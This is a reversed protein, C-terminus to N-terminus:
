SARLEEAEDATPLAFNSIPTQPKEPAQIKTRPDEMRGRRVARVLEVFEARYGGPDYSLGQEAWQEVVALDATGKHESDRLVMGFAAVAAAFKFDGSADAFAAGGDKVPFEVKRSVEGAPEKYRVKVTLLEDAVERSVDLETGVRVYRLEEGGGGKQAPDAGVPVVEYLATVTHGAGIEGADVKDNAFDEKALARKEYGILRYASVQAPNFEVQLKVDKAITLLTGTAQEVLLKEAERRTDVYGYSGNGRDAVQQLLADKLNGMGFGLVTLFVGAKAKEEILRVLEGESTVGVNFDGDTCLIVRNIGGEIFNAKAVDYALQIGMAGNTGGSAVLADVAALIEREKAVPTSALALGSGEAYTVIAVRDDGRLRKLLLRMSEKVLPLKNAADMSGSVDLLFVLNAPGREAAAVERGKLGIRVLRHGAAWPAEAVEINGALPPATGEGRLAAPGEYRYPFYNVLEEIRVADVPPKEGREIFRRVNAYSATDVDAGFTSLPNERASLFGSERRFAYAETNLERLATGSAGGTKQKPAASFLVPAGYAAAASSTSADWETTRAAPRVRSTSAMADRVFEVSVLGAADGGDRTTTGPQAGTATPMGIPLNYFDEATKPRRGVVGSEALKKSQEVLGGAVLSEVAVVADPRREPMAPESSRFSPESQPLAVAISDVSVERYVKRETDKAQDYPAQLAVVMAFCAAALGGIVYYVQPFRLVRGRKVARYPDSAKAAERGEERAAEGSLAKEVAAAAARIEEVAARAQADSRVWADVAAREDGELEGLAYATLKPDDEFQNTENMGSKVDRRVETDGHRQPESSM